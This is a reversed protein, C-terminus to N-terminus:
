SAASHLHQPVSAAGGTPNLVPDDGHWAPPSGPDKGAKASPKSTSHRKGPPIRSFLLMIEHREDGLGGRVKRDLFWSCLQADEEWDLLQKPFLPQSETGMGSLAPADQLVAVMPCGVQVQRALHRCFPM